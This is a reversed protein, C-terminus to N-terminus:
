SRKRPRGSLLNGLGILLSAGFTAVILNACVLSLGGSPMDTLGGVIWGGIVAGLIGLLVDSIFPKDDSGMIRRALSGAFFGIVLWGFCIFPSKLFWLISDVVLDMPNDGKSITPLVKRFRNYVL